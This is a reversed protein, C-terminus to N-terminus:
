TPMRLPTVADTCWQALGYRTCDQTAKPVITWHSAPSEGGEPLLGVAAAGLYECGRRSGCSHLM